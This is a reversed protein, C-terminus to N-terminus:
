PSGTRRIPLLLGALAAVTGVVLATQALLVGDLPVDALKSGAWLGAAIGVGILLGWTLARM